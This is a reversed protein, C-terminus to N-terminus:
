AFHAVLLSIIGASIAGILTMQLTDFRRNLDDFRQIMESRLANTEGRLEGALAKNEERLERALSKNERRLESGLGAMERRLEQNDQHVQVFRQDVQAFGTDVRHVLDDMRDDTWTQRMAEM